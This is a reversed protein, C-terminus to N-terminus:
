PMVEVEQAYLARMAAELITSGAGTKTIRYHFDDRRDDPRFVTQISMGKDGNAFKSPRSEYRFGRHSWEVVAHKGSYVKEEVDKPIPTDMWGNLVVQIEVGEARADFTQGRRVWADFECSPTRSGTLYHPESGGYVSNYPRGGAVLDDQLHHLAILLDPHEGYALSKGKADLSVVRLGGGSLFCSIHELSTAEVCAFTDVFRPDVKAPNDM